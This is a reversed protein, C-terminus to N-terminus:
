PPATRPAPPPAQPVAPLTHSPAQLSPHQWPPLQKCPPAKPTDPLNHPPVVHWPFHTSPDPLPSVYKPPTAPPLLRQLCRAAPCRAATPQLHRQRQWAPLGAVQQCRGGDSSGKRGSVHKIPVGELGSALRRRRDTGVAQAQRALLGEAAATAAAGGGREAAGGAAALCWLRAAHPQGAHRNRHSLPLQNLRERLKPVGLLHAPPM